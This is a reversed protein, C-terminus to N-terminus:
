EVMLTKIRRATNNVVLIHWQSSHATGLLGPLTGPIRYLIRGRPVVTLDLDTTAPRGAM